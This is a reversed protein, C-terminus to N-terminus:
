FQDAITKLFLAISFCIWGQLLKKGKPTISYLSMKVPKQSDM